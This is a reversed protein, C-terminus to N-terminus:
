RSLSIIFINSRINVVELFRVRGDAAPLEVDCGGCWESNNPEFNNIHGIQSPLSFIGHLKLDLTPHYFYFLFGFLISTPTSHSVCYFYCPIHSNYIVLFPVTTLHFIELAIEQDSVEGGGGWGREGGELLLREECKVMSGRIEAERGIM